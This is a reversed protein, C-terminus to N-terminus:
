VVTIAQASGSIVSFTVRYPTTPVIVAATSTLDLTVSNTGNTFSFTIVLSHTVDSAAQSDTGLITAVATYTGAKNVVSFYVSGSDSVHDTGNSADVCYTLIGSAMEGSAVNITILPKAVADVLTKNGGLVARPIGSSNHIVAIRPTTLTPSTAFTLLGSGTEDTVAALLNASSPTALFTAVNAGLGSVGTSIPLGTANTLTGSSPTGLAGGNLLVNVGEIAIVGASARSITTDTAHGLEIGGSPNIGTLFAGASDQVELLNASQSAAGKLILGITSATSPNVQLQAGPSATGIGVKGTSDAVIINDTTIGTELDNSLALKFKDGSNVSLAYYRKDATNGTRGIVLSADNAGVVRFTSYGSAFVIGSFNAGTRSVELDYTTGVAGDGACLKGRIMATGTTHLQFLPSSTGIGLRNNTDDWFLNTNDQALVSAAGVFLVSGTTGGTIITSNIEAGGGAGTPTLRFGKASM